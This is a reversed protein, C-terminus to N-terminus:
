AGTQQQAYKAPPPRKSKIINLNIGIGEAFKWGHSTFVVKSRGSGSDPPNVENIDVEIIVHSGTKSIKINESM